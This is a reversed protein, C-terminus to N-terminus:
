QHCRRFGTYCGPLAASTGFSWGRERVLGFGEAKVKTPTQKYGRLASHVEADGRQKFITFTIHGSFLCRNKNQRSKIAVFIGHLMM